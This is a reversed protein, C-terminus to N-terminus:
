EVCNSSVHTNFHGLDGCVPCPDDPELGPDPMGKGFPCRVGKKVVRFGAADLKALADSAIRRMVEHPPEPSDAPTYVDMVMIALLADRMRKIEDAADMRDREKWTPVDYISPDRAADFPFIAM